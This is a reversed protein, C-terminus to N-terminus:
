FGPELIEGTSADVAPAQMDSPDDVNGSVVVRNEPLVLPEANANEAVEMAVANDQDQAMANAFEVSMVGYKSLLQRLVTKCAMADFDTQWPGNGFAKSYKKGHAEAKERTWYM